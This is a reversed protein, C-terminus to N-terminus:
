HRPATTPTTERGTVGEVIFGPVALLTRTLPVCAPCSELILVMFFAATVGEGSNRPADHVWTPFGSALGM